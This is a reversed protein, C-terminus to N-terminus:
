LWDFTGICLAQHIMRKLVVLAGLGDTSRPLINLIGTPVQSAEEICDELSIMHM